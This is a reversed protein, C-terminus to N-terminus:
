PFIVRLRWHFFDATFEFSLFYHTILPRTSFFEALSYVRNSIAWRVQDWQLPPQCSFKQWEGHVCLMYSSCDKPDRIYSGENCPLNVDISPTTLKSSVSSETAVAPRLAPPCPVRSVRASPIPCSALTQTLSAREGEKDLM